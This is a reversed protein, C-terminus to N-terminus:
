INKENAVELISDMIELQAKLLTTDKGERDLKLFRQHMDERMELLKQGKTQLIQEVEATKKDKTEKWREELIPQMLTRKLNSLDKESVQKILTDILMTEKTTQIINEIAKIYKDSIEKHFIDLRDAIKFEFNSINIKMLELGEDEKAKVDLILEKLEGFLFKLHNIEEELEKIKGKNFM